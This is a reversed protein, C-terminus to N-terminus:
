IQNNEQKVKFECSFIVTGILHPTLVGWFIQCKLKFITNHNLRQCFFVRYFVM